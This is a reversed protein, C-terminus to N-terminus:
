VVVRRIREASVNGAKLKLIRKLNAIQTEKVIYYGLAGNLSMPNAKLLKRGLQYLEREVLVRVSHLSEAEGKVYTGSLVESIVDSKASKLEWLVKSSLLGGPIIESEDHFATLSSVNHLDVLRRAFSVVEKSKTRKALTLLRAFYERDLAQEFGAPHNVDLHEEVIAKFQTFRLKVWLEEMSCTLLDEMSEEPFVKTTVLLKRYRLGFKNNMKLRTLVRVNRYDLGAGLHAFFPRESKPVANMLRENMVSSKKNLAHQMNEVSFDDGLVSVLDHYGEMSELDSMIESIGYECYDAVTKEPVLRALMGRARANTYSYKAANMVRLSMPVAVGIAVIVVGAVIVSVM